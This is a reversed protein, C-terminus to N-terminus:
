VPKRQAYLLCCVMIKRRQKTADLMKRRIHETGALKRANELRIGAIAAFTDPKIWCHRHFRNPLGSCMRQLAEVLMSLGEAAIQINGYKELV